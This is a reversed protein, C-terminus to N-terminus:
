IVQVFVVGRHVIILELSEKVRFAVDLLRYAEIQSINARCM